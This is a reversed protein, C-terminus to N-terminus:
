DQKNTAKPLGEGWTKETMPFMSIHFKTCGYPVLTIASPTGGKIPQKPISQVGTPKWDFQRAPIRLQIPADNLQWSWHEPMATHTVEIQEAAQKSDVDLAYNWPTGPIMKNATEDPLPLAFLLPGYNVYTSPENVDDRAALPRKFYLQNKKGIGRITKPFPTERGKVITPQMPLELTICDESKWERTIVVFGSENAKASIYEQNVKIKPASCWAPIRLHLPFSVPAATKVSMKISQEFPYTTESDISVATNSVTTKLQSPGYLTAALGGDATAMWMHMIFNPIIRSTNAVCCLPGHGLKAYEYGGFRPKEGPLVTGVRNPTQYYSVKEYDRSVPVPAANFFIREMRDSHAADGTLRLLWHYTWGGCAVNCTEVSRTAGSGYEEASVLGFPLGHRRDKDELAQLTADMQSKEGTWSSLLAPVRVNEYFIVGHGDPAKGTEWKETLQTLSERRSYALVNELIKAEGSMVYTELMPDINVAGSIPAFIDIPMDVLPYDRYVKVLADLIRQDGTAQYYAVLARGMHSHSWTNFTDKLISNPLWYILSNDSANVADVVVDLRSTAKKILAPDDLIYALRVLGDLWYACQEIPWGTGHKGVGKAKFSEGSYGLKFVAHREDLHGILGDGASKAWDHLWGTPRVAGPKLPTFPPQIKYAIPLEPTAPLKPTASPEEAYTTCALGGTLFLASLAILKCHNMM